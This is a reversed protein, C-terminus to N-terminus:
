RRDEKGAIVAVMVAATPAAGLFGALGGVIVCLLLSVAGLADHKKNIGYLLPALGCVFGAFIGFGIAILANQESM